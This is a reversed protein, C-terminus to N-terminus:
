SLPSGEASAQWPRTLDYWEVDHLLSMWKGFLTGLDAPIDTAEGARAEAESTFWDVVTLRDPGTWARLGALFDGRVNAFRDGMAAEVDELRSRHPVRARMFQVFRAASPPGNGDVRHVDGTVDLTTAGSLFGSGSRSEAEAARAPEESSYRLAALWQGGATIGGTSGLWSTSGGARRDHWEDWGRRLAEPDGVPGVALLVFMPSQTHGTVAHSM